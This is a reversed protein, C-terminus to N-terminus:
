EHGGGTDTDRALARRAVDGKDDWLADTPEFPTGEVTTRLWEREYFELAERARALDAEAREARRLLAAETTTLAMMAGTDTDRALEVLAADLAADAIEFAVPDTEHDRRKLAERVRALAARAEDREREAAIRMEVHNAVQRRAEDREREAAALQIALTVSLDRFEDREREAAEARAKFEHRLGAEVQAAQRWEDRERTLCGIKAELAREKDTQM